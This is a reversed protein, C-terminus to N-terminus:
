RSEAAERTFGPEIDAAVYLLAAMAGAGLALERPNVQEITDRPSHHLDFYRASDPKLGVQIVGHARMPGIDAGGGGQVLTGAGWPELLEVIAALLERTDGTADSSFGRPVFSGSDSELALVHRPLEGEHAKAYGRGGALGNEENAFMVVRITRKPRLGLTKLLRLAELAQVCGGGDDHAGQGVDWADLHGGVVLVEDARTTGRYEGIVNPNQENPLTECNQEIHLVVRQGAAVLTALKEAALTSIAAHPIRPVDDAYHMAGTHPNDDLRTTMSRVLSAVAGQRAAVTAGAGRQGVAGSYAAFTTPLTPDLPGNFLVIRGRAAEGLLKGADLSDVVVLEATIGGPPTAISGGLALMPLEAAHAAPEVLRVRGTSGRVWHPVEVLEWRVNELGDALMTQRAWEAAALYGPSGALRRPATSCLATLREMARGRALSEAMIAAVEDAYGAVVDTVDTVHAPAAAPATTLAAGANSVQAPAPAVVAAAAVAGPEANVGTDRVPAALLLLLTAFLPLM